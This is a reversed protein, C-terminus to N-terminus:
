FLTRKENKSFHMKSALEDVRKAMAYNMCTQSQEDPKM